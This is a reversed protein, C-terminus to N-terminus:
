AHRARRHAHPHAHLGTADPWGAGASPGASRPPPPIHVRRVSDGADREPSIVECAVLDDPDETPHPAAPLDKDLFNALTRSTPPTLAAAVRDSRCGFVSPVVM